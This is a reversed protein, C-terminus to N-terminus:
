RTSVARPPADLPKWRQLSTPTSASYDVSSTLDTM